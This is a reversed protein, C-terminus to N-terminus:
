DCRLCCEQQCGKLPGPAAARPKPKARPRYHRKPAAHVRRPQQYVYDEEVVTTTTTTTVPASQIVVTTVTPQPYYYYVPQQYYGQYGYGASQGAPGRYSPGRYGAQAGGVQAGGVQPRGGYKKLLRRCRDTGQEIAAGAVAGLGGGILSGALRDGKGAIRNGAIAGIAGGVVAGGIGSSERCQALYALEEDQERRARDDIGSDDFPTGVGEWHPRVSSGDDAIFTGSYGGNYVQGDAGTYTGQWDGSYSGDPRYGGQWEGQYTGANSSSPTLPAGVQAGNPRASAVVTDGSLLVGQDYGARGDGFGDRYGQDYANWDVGYRVDQVTGYRDTLVADDYYRSWGYGAAPRSFGYFGFNPIFFSPQLFFRPLRTGRVPRTYVGPAGVAGRPRHGRFGGFQGGKGSFGRHGFSGGSRGKSGYSQDSVPLALVAPNTGAAVPYASDKVAAHAPAAGLTLLALAAFGLSKDSFGM